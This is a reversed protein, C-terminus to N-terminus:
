ILPWTVIFSLAPLELLTDDFYVDFFLQRNILGQNNSSV